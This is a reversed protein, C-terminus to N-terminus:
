RLRYLMYGPAIATSDVPHQYHNLYQHYYDEVVGWAVLLYKAQMQDFIEKNREM